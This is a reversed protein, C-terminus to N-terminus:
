NGTLILPRQVNTYMNGALLDAEQAPTLVQSGTLTGATGGSATLPITVPGSVGPAGTHIHQNTINATLGRYNGFHELLRTAMNYKVIVVGGGRSATPPVEQSASLTGKLYRIQAHTTLAFFFILFLFTSLKKM